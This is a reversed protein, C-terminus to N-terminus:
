VHIGGGKAYEWKYGYATKYNKVNRCCKSISSTDLYNMKRKIEGTGYFINIVKNNKIDIQYIIKSNLNNKGLKSPRLGNLIAHKNNEAHTNWELNSVCNNQKNGDKHNVTRKNEINPIFTQAVLRHVFHHKKMGDKCLSIKMYGEIDIYNKM